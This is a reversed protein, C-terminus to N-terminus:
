KQRKQFLTMGNPLPCSSKGFGTQDPVPHPGAFYPFLIYSKLYLGLNVIGLLPVPPIYCLKGCHLGQFAMLDIPGCM